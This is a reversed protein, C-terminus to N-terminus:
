ENVHSLYVTTIVHFDLGGIEFIMLRHLSNVLTQDINGYLVLLFMAQPQIM